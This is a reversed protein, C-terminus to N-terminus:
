RTAPVARGERRAMVAAALGGLSTGLVIVLDSEGAPHRALETEVQRDLFASRLVVNQHHLLPYLSALPKAVVRRTVPPLLDYSLGGDDCGHRSNGAIAKLWCVMLNVNTNTPACDDWRHLLRLARNGGRWAITWVWRPANWPPQSVGARLAVQELPPMEPRDKYIGRRQWARSVKGPPRVMSCSAAVILLAVRSPSAM